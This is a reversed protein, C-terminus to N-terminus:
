KRKLGLICELADVFNNRRAEEANEKSFLLPSNDIYKMLRDALPVLHIHFDQCAWDRFEGFVQLAKMHEPGWMDKKGSAIVRDRLIGLVVGVTDLPLPVDARLLSRKRPVWKDKKTYCGNKM